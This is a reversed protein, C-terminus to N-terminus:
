LVCSGTHTISPPIDRVQEHISPYWRGERPCPSLLFPPPMQVRHVTSFYQYTIVTTPLKRAVVFHVVPPTSSTAIESRLPQKRRCLEGVCINIVDYGEAECLKRCNARETLLRWAKLHQPQSTSDAHTGVQRSTHKGVTTTAHLQHVDVGWIYAQM